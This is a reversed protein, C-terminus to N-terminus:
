IRKILVFLKPHKIVILFRHLILYRLFSNHLCRIILLLLQGLKTNFHMSWCCLCYHLLSPLDLMFFNIKPCGAQNLDLLRDVQSVRIIIAFLFVRHLKKVAQIIVRRLYLLKGHSETISRL